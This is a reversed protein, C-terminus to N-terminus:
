KIRKGSLDYVTGDPNFIVVNGNVVRKIPKTQSSDTKVGDIGNPNSEQYKAVLTEEFAKFMIGSKIESLGQETIGDYEFESITYMDGSAKLTEDVKRNGIDWNVTHAENITINLMEAAYAKAKDYVYAQTDNMRTLDAYTVTKCFELENKYKAAFEEYSMGFYKKALKDADYETKAPKNHTTQGNAEEFIYEIKDKLEHLSAMDKTTRQRLEDIDFNILRDNWYPYYRYHWRPVIMIDSYAECDIFAQDIDKEMKYLRTELNTYTKTTVEYRQSSNLSTNYYEVAKDFDPNTSKSVGAARTNTVTLGMLEYIESKNISNDVASRVFNFIEQGQLGKVGDSDAKKALSALKKNSWDSYDINNIGAM